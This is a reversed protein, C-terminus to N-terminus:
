YMSNRVSLAISALRGDGFGCWVELRPMPAWALAVAGSRGEIHHQAAGSVTTTINITGDSTCDAVYLGNPSFAIGCVSQAPRIHAWEKVYRLPM